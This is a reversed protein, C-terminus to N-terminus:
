DKKGARPKKPKALIGAALTQAVPKVYKEYWKTRVESLKLDKEIQKQTTGELLLHNRLNQYLETQKKGYGDLSGCVNAAFPTPAGSIKMHFGRAESIEKMVKEACAHAQQAPTKVMDGGEIEKAEEKRVKKKPAPTGESAYFAKAEADGMIGVDAGLLGDELMEAGDNREMNTSGQMSVSDTVTKKAKAKIATRM